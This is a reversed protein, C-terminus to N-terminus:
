YQVGGGSSLWVGMDPMSEMISNAIGIASLLPQLVDDGDLVFGHPCQQRPSRRPVMAHTSPRGLMTGQKADNLVWVVSNLLVGM